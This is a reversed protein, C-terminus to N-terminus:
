AIVGENRMVDILADSYGAARLLEDTNAGLLPAAGQAGTPTASMSFLPGAMEMPGLADHDVDALFGNAELQPDLVAEELFNVPGCPVGLSRLRDLAEAVTWTAFAAEASAVLDECLQQHAVPDSGDYGPEWRPDTVGVAEQVKARLATSSAGTCVFGDRCQYTRSYINGSMDFKHERERLQEVAKAIEPFTMESNRAEAIGARVEDRWEDDLRRVNLVQTAQLFMSTALLSTDILQGKGINARAFLGTTVAWAIVPASVTDAIPLMMYSPLDDVIRGWSAMMGTGAQLINDYGPDKARPGEPGFATNRVYVIQPNITSITEYDLGLRAPTDLRYNLVLVDADRVLDHVIRQGRKDKLNVALSQKGRNMALFGRSDTLDPTQGFTRFPDGHLPEVKIVDAGMDSLLSTAHSAAIMESCDIIRIGALPGNM